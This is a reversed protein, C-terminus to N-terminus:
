NEFGCSSCIRKEGLEPLGCKKCLVHTEIFKDIYLELNSCTEIKNLTDDKFQAGFTKKVGQSFNKVDNSTLKLQKFIQTINTLRTRSKEHAIVLKDRKYRYYIDNPDGGINKSM